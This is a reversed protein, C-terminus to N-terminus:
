EKLGRFNTRIQGRKREIIKRRELAVFDISSRMGTTTQYGLALHLNTTGFWEGDRRELHKVLRQEPESLTNYLKQM